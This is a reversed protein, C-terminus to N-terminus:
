YNDIQRFAVVFVRGGCHPRISIPPGFLNSKLEFTYRYIPEYGFPVTQASEGGSHWCSIMKTQLSSRLLHCVRRRPELGSWDVTRAATNAHLQVFLYVRTRLPRCAPEAPVDNQGSMNGRLGSYRGRVLESYRDHDVHCLPYVPM